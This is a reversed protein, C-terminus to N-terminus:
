FRRAARVSRYQPVTGTGDGNEKADGTNTVQDGNYRKVMFVYYPSAGEKESSSWYWKLEVFETMFRQYMLLLEDRSPLFWDSFGGATYGYRCLYAATNHDAGYQNIINTTNTDGTGVATSTGGPVWEYITGWIQAESLHTTSAAMGHGTGDNYFVYGGFKETKDFVWGSNFAVENGYATGYSNSAYARVYYTTNETLGTIMASTFVGSGAGDSVHSDTILPTGATNWCLGRETVSSQGEDTVDGGGTASTGAIDVTFTLNGAIATTTVSPLPSPIVTLNFVKTDSASGKTIVAILIVSTNVSGYPPRNVLGEGSVVEENDSSWFVSTGSAGATPLIINQTLSGASDGGSYGIVLAAKDSQVAQSDNQALYITDSYVSSINGATDNLRVSVARSGIAAGMTWNKTVPIDTGASLEEPASWSGGDNRYQVWLIDATETYAYDLVASIDTAEADGNNIRFGTVEPPATDLTIGRNSSTITGANTQFEAYVTRFGDGGTIIWGYTGSYPVWSSWPGSSGTNSFRMSSVNSITMCLIVSSSNVSLHQNGSVASGWIYFDGAPAGTNLVINNKMSVVHHGEDRYEAYVTKTGDGVQLDWKVSSSYPMWDSWSGSENRFRMELRDEEKSVNSYLNVSLSATPAGSNIIFSDAVPASVKVEVLDRMVDNPCSIFLVQLILLFVTKTINKNYYYKVISIM